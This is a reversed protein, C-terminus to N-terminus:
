LTSFVKEAAAITQEIDSTTHAASMFGAEFASPAIYVGEALMGHFFRGFRDTDCGMVDTFSGIEDNNTFFVGYMSGVQNTCLPIQHNSAALRLGELLMTTKKEVAEIAAEDDEVYLPPM